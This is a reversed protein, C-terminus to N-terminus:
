ENILRVVEAYPDLVSIIENQGKEDMTKLTIKTGIIIGAMLFTYPEIKLINSIAITINSYESQRLQLFEHPM